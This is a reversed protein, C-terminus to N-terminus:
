SQKRKLSTIVLDPVQQEVQSHFEDPFYLNQKDSAFRTIPNASGELRSQTAKRGIWKLPISAIERFKNLGKFAMDVLGGASGSTGESRFGFYDLLGMYQPRSFLGEDWEHAEQSEFWKM